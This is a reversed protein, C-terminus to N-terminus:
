SRRPHFAARPPFHPFVLIKLVGNIATIGDKVAQVQITTQSPDSDGFILDRITAARAAHDLPSVMGGTHSATPHLGCPRGSTSSGAATEPAHRLM